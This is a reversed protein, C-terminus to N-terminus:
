GSSDKNGVTNRRADNQKHIEPELRNQADSSPVWVPSSFELAHFSGESERM